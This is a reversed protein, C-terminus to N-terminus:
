KLEQVEQDEPDASGAPAEPAVYHKAQFGQKQATKLEEDSNLIRTTAENAVWQWEKNGHGDVPLYMRRHSKKPHLYVARPFEQHPIAKHPINGPNLQGPVEQPDIRAGTEPDATIIRQPQASPLTVEKKGKMALQDVTSPM